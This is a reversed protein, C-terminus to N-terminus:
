RAHFVSALVPLLLWVSPGNRTWGLASGGISTLVYVALDLQHGKPGVVRYYPNASGLGGAKFGLNQRMNLIRELEHIRHVKFLYIQRAHYSFLVWVSMLASVLLAAVGMVSDPLRQQILLGWFVFVGTIPFSGGAM